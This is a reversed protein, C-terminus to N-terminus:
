DNFLKLKPLFKRDSIKAPVLEWCIVDGDNDRITNEIVYTVIERRGVIALGEDCSDNYVPGFGKTSSIEGVILNKTRDYSFQKHGVPCPMLIAM